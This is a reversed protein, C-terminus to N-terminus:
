SLQCTYQGDKSSGVPSYLVSWSCTSPPEKREVAKAPARGLIALANRWRGLLNGEDGIEGIEKEGGKKRILLIHVADNFDADVRLLPADSTM